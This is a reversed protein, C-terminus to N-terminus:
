KVVLSALATFLVGGCVGPQWAPASVNSVLGAHM